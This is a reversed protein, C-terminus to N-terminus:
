VHLLRECLERYDRLALRLQETDGSAAGDGDPSQWAGRVTRRRRTVAETFRAALEELVQDAEAVAERPQDVFEAVAHRMREELKDCEDHALLPAGRGAQAGHRGQGTGATHGTGTHGFQGSQGAQEVHGDRGDRGRAGEAKVGAPTPTPMPSGARARAQPGAALPAGGSAGGPTGAPAAGAAGGTRAEPTGQAGTNESM